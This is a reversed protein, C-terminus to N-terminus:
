GRLSAQTIRTHAFVLSLASLGLLMALAISADLTTVASEPELLADALTSLLAPLSTFRSFPADAALDVLVSGMHPIFWLAAFAFAALTPTSVVSSVAFSVATLSLASVLSLAWLGGLVRAGALGLGADQLMMALGAFLTCPVAHVLVLLGFVAGARGVLYHQPTVPKTFYFAFAGRARDHAVAGTAAGVAVATMFLWIQASSLRSAYLGLSPAPMQGPNQAALYGLVGFAGAAVLAPAWALLVCLKVLLSSWARRLGYRAM